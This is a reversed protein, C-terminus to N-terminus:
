ERRKAMFFQSLLDKCEEEMIGGVYPMAGNLLRPLEVRSICCGAEGDYAGFALAGIRFNIIAGMCMACPELTVYLVCNDLRRTGLKESAAKLALLEAHASPDTNAEVLNHARAIIEGGCVVVAGVPVEDRRYAKEAEELADRMYKKEIFFERKM